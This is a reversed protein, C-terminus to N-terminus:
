RAGGAARILAAGLRAAEVPTLCTVGDPCDLVIDTKGSSTLTGERWEDVRVLAVIASSHRVPPWEDDPFTESDIVNRPAHLALDFADFNHVIETLGYDTVTTHCDTTTCWPPHAAHVPALDVAARPRSDTRTM